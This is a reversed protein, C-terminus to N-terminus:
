ILDKGRCLMYKQLKGILLKVDARHFLSFYVLLLTMCLLQLVVFSFEYNQNSWNLMFGFTFGVVGRVSLCLLFSSASAIFVFRYLIIYTQFFNFIFGGFLYYIMLIIDQSYVGAVIAGVNIVASIVGSLFLYKPKGAAQFFAGSSSLVVQIPLLLSLAKLFPIVNEWQEGLVIGVVNEANLYLFIGAMLGLTLLRQTLLKHVINMKIVDDKQKKVVAQIAPSMAMTTLQLPYLMLKYARDYIGLTAMGFFKGILLSDLNRSFYNVFNFLFQYVTFSLIINISSINRGFYATGMSTYGSAIRLFIYRSVGLVLFRSALAMVGIGKNYLIWVVLFACAEAVVDIIALRKFQLEKILSTVPIITFCGIASSLAVIIGIGQFNSGYVSPGVVVLVSFLIVGLVVGLIFTFSHIGDRDRSSFTEINIIAPTIVNISLIQFFMWVVQILAIVGFDAPSFLRSYVALLFFQVIFLVAKGFVTDFIAKYLAM